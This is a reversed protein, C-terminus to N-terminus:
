LNGGQDTPPNPVALAGERIQIEKVKKAALIFMRAM